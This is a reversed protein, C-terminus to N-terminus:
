KCNFAENINNKFVDQANNDQGSSTFNLGGLSIPGEVEDQIIGSLNLKVRTKNGMEELNVYKKLDFPRGEKKEKTIYANVQEDTKVSPDLQKVIYKILALKFDTNNKDLVDVYGYKDLSSNVKDVKSELTNKKQLPVSNEPSVLVKNETVEQVQSNKDIVPREIKTVEEAPIVVEPAIEVPNYSDKTTIENVPKVSDMLEIVTQKAETSYNNTLFQVFQGITEKIRQLLTRGKSDRVSDLKSRYEGRHEFVGAMFEFIDSSEYNEGTTPNYPLVERAQNYLGVLKTVFLPADRNAIFNKNVDITGYTKLAQVQVSHLLEEIVNANMETLAQEPTFKARQADVFSESNIYIKNEGHRYFAQGTKDISPDKFNVIEVSTTPDLYDRLFNGVEQINSDESNQLVSDLLTFVDQADYIDEINTTYSTVPGLGNSNSAQPVIDDFKKDTLSSKQNYNELNYENYGFSGLVPIQKYEGDENIKEFLKYKNDSYKISTDRISIFKPKDETILSFSTLKGLLGGVNKPNKNRINNAEANMAGFDEFNFNNESIIKAQEPNHQYYQKVFTEILSDSNAYNNIVERLNEDYGISKLYDIDIFQRFGIAGNEQNSLYAYSALDQALKRPTMQEGNWIGLSTTNDDLMQLFYENKTIVGLEVDNLNAHKIININNNVRNDIRIDLSRLLNNNNFLPYRLLGNSLREQKARSIYQALSEKTKSQNFLRTREQEINGIFYGLQGSSQLADKLSKLVKWKFETSQNPRLAIGKEAITKNLTSNLFDRNYPYNVDMIQTASRLSYLLMVGESTTPRWAYDGILMYGEYNEPDALYAEQHVYTGILATANAISSGPLANLADIRSLVDFYSKGLGGSSLSLIRQIDQTQEAEQKLELFKRLVSLQLLNNVDGKLNNYLEDATMAESMERYEEDSLVHGESYKFEKNLKEIVEEERNGSFESTLSKSEELLEVYRMLIPQALFFSPLQVKTGDSLTDQDFQRLTLQILVPMTYSNENRKAMINAKVNDVASNHNESHVANVERAGDLTETRGLTGDSTYRGITIHKPQYNGEKDLERIVLKRSEPLRELQAQFTVANSHMATALKGSTGSKLLKRQVDDSLLTFNKRDVINIAEDILGATKEAVDMSLIRFIKQQVEESPSTYVSKYIDIMANELGALKIDPNSTEYDLTAKRINKNADLYYNSKYVYRKDIDFDEGIQKTHEDPVILLDGMNEPLFGVVKLIAGSQHASTPIRFSFNTLLEPDIKDLDLNYFGNEDLTVYGEEILNIKKMTMQGTIPDKVKKNYHSQVLVEGGSVVKKGDQTTIYTAKLDGKHEPDIWIIGSRDKDSMSKYDTIREFGESSGVIHGNGPLKLSIFRNKVISLFLSEFKDANNTLWIPIVTQLGTEDIELEKLLSKDYQRTKIERKLVNVLNEFVERKKAEPLDYYSETPSLGLEKELGETQLKMYETEVHTKIKDLDAGALLEVDEIGLDQLVSKPFINPFVNGMTNIGAGLINKNMQSGMTTQTDMNKAAYKKAKYPTDQQVKFSSRNLNLTNPKLNNEIFNDLVSPDSMNTNYFDSMDLTTKISGVKNATQYSMRVNQGSKNELAELALRVNDLKLGRTLQPILPFSSSKVYVFRNVKNVEDQLIGAYVPKLPNLIVKLDEDTLTNNVINESFREMDELTIRGQGLLINLHEKWTTYEQADTGEINFYEAITPNSKKLEEIANNRVDKDESKYDEIFKNQESPIRGNNAMRIYEEIISSPAEVDNVFVQSYKSSMGNLLTSNALVNGPAILAAVRKNISEMTAKSLAFADLNGQKDLYAKKGPAYLAPDGIYLQYINSQFLYQNAIFDLAVIKAKQIPTLQEGEQVKGNSYSTDIYKLEVDGKDNYNLIGSKVWTGGVLKGETDLLIKEELNSNIVSQLVDKAKLRAEIRINELARVKDKESNFQMRSFGLLVKDLSSGEIDINNFEPIAIFYKNAEEYKTINTPNSYSYIIRDLESDFLNDLMFNLVNDDVKVENGSIDFNNSKLNMLATTIAVMQGKDSLSPSFMKGIRFQINPASFNTSAVDLNKKVDNLFFALQTLVHDTDSLKDISLDGFTRKGQEKIAEPSVRTYRNKINQIFDTNEIIDLLFNKQSYPVSKLFSFEYSDKNMLKDTIDDLMIRMSTGPFSKGAIRQSPTALISNLQLEIDSLNNLINNITNELFLNEERDIGLESEEKKLIPKIARDLIGLLNKSGTIISPGGEKNYFAKFTNKGITIGLDQLLTYVQEKIASEGQEAILANGNKYLNELKTYFNSLYKKNIIRNDNRVEIFNGQMFNTRWQDRIRFNDSNSNTNQVKLTYRGNNDTSYIVMEMDLKQQALKYLMENKIHEPAKSLRNYMERAIVQTMKNSGNQGAVEDLKKLMMDTNSPLGIALAKILDSVEGINFFLPLDLEGPVTRGNIDVFNIGAFSIKLATSYTLKIDKEINMKSYDTEIQDGFDFDEEFVENVYDGNDDLYGEYISDLKLETGLLEDLQMKLRELLIEKNDIITQLKDAKRIFEQAISKTADLKSLNDAIERNRKIISHLFQEPSSMLREYVLRPKITKNETPQITALVSNFLYDGIHALEKNSIGPIRLIGLERAQEDVFINRAESDIDFSNPKNYMFLEFEEPTLTERLINLQEESMTNNIDVTSPTDIQDNIDPTSEVVETPAVEEKLQEVNNTVYVMPQVDTIWAVPKGEGNLEKSPFSKITTRLISKLFGSYTNQGHKSQFSQINGENDISFMEGNSRLMSKSLNVTAGRLAGDNDQGILTDLFNVSRELNGGKFDISYEQGEYRIKMFGPGITFQTYRDETSNIKDSTLIFNNLINSFNGKLNPMKAKELAQNLRQVTNTDVGYKDKLIQKLEQNETTNYIKALVLSKVINFSSDNLNEGAVANNKTPFSVNYIPKGNIERVKRVEVISGEHNGNDNTIFPKERTLLDQGLKIQTGDELELTNADRVFGLRTEGTADELTMSTEGTNVNSEWIGTEPNERTLYFLQGLDKVSTVQSVKNGDFFRTREEATAKAGQNAIEQPTENSQQSVNGTHWWEVDHVASVIEDSINGESDMQYYVLPVKNRWVNYWEPSDKQLQTHGYKTAEPTTIWDMYQSFTMQLPARHPDNPNSKDIVAVSINQYNPAYDMYLKDGEKIFYRLTNTEPFGPLTEAQRYKGTTRDYDNYIALKNSGFATGREVVNTPMVEGYSTTGDNPNQVILHNDEEVVETTNSVINKLFDVAEKKANFLYDTNTVERGLLESAREIGPLINQIEKKSFNEILNKILDDHTAERGIEQSVEDYVPQFKERLQDDYVGKNFKDQSWSETNDLISDDVNDVNDLAEIEADYKANIQKNNKANELTEKSLFYEANKGDLTYGSGDSYGVLMKEVANSGVRSEMSKNMVQIYDKIVNDSILSFLSNALEQINKENTLIATKNNINIGENLIGRIDNLLNTLTRLDEGTKIGKQLLTKLQKIKNEFLDKKTKWHNSLLESDAFFEQNVFNEVEQIRRKIEDIQSQKETKNISINEAQTGSTINVNPNSFLSIAGKKNQTPTKSSEKVETQEKPQTSPVNNVKVGGTKEISEKVKIDAKKDEAEKTIKSDVVNGIKAENIAKDVEQATSANQIKKETNKKAQQKITEPNSRHAIEKTADFVALTYNMSNGYAKTYESDRGVESILNAKEEVTYGPLNELEQNIEELRQKVLENNQDTVYKSIGARESELLFRRQSQPNLSQYVQDKTLTNQIDQNVENRSQQLYYRNLKSQVIGSAIKFDTTDKSLTENFWDKLRHADDINNQYTEKIAKIKAEEVKGTERNVLGAKELYEMDMNNAADLTDQMVQVNMDFMVTSGNGKAYDMQLSGVIGGLAANHSAQQAKQYSEQYKKFNEPTPSKQYTEKHSNFEEQAQSQADFLNKNFNIMNDLGEKYNKNFDRNRYNQVAKFGTGLLLGGLAGGIMSDRMENGEWLNAWSTDKGEVKRQSYTGIGTQVGEEVSESGAVLGWGAVKQLTKNSTLGGVVREGVGTIADSIGTSVGTGARNFANKAVNGVSRNLSGLLLMNQLGNMAAVTGVETKFHLNAAERSKTLAQEDSFGLSKFKEYTNNQTELANMHAEKVGQVMGFALDKGANALLRSGKAVSAIGSTGGTAWDLLLNEGIMEAIIGGTYGLQQVQNAFYAGNWINGTPDQYIQNEENADDTLKKGLRNFWNTYDVNTKDMAMATINSVDWAGISDLFGAGFRKAAGVVTDYALDDISQQEFAKLAMDEPANESSWQGNFSETTTLGFLTLPNYSFDNNRSGKSAKGFGYSEYGIGVNPIFTNSTGFGSPTLQQQLSIQRAESAAKKLRAASEKKSIPKIEEPM